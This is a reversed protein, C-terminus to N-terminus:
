KKRKLLRQIKRLKLVYKYAENLSDMDLLEPYNHFYRAVLLRRQIDSRSRNLTRSLNRISPNDRYSDYIKRCDSIWM